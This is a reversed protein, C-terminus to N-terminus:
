PGTLPWPPPWPWPYQNGAGLKTANGAATLVVNTGDSMAFGGPCAVTTTGVGNANPVTITFAGPLFWAGPPVAAGAALAVAPSFRGETISGPSYAVGGSGGSM